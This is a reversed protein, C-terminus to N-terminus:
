ANVRQLEGYFYEHLYRTVRRAAITASTDNDLFPAIAIEECVEIVFHPRRPPVQWWRMGKGLFPASCRIVVPRINVRGRVAINAAGRQMHMAGQLPTRTGEPFLLLNSSARLSDIADGVLAAGGSNCLYGAMIVPGRTFPNRFLASKVVCDANRVLAMLFVVDILSPHNALVLQGNSQLRERGRVESSIAGLVTMLWVFSGMLLRIMRRAGSRRAAPTRVLLALLPFAVFRLTLGGLGFVV